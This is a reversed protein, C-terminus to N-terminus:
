IEKLSERQGTTIKNGSVKSNEMYTELKIGNNNSFISQIIKIRILRNRIAKYKLIHDTKLTGVVSRPSQQQRTAHDTYVETLRHRHHPYEM